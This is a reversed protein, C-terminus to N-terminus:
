LTKMLKNLYKPRSWTISLKKLDLEYFCKIYTKYKIRQCYNIIQWIKNLWGSPIHLVWVFIRANNNLTIIISSDIFYGVCNSRVLEWNITNTEVSQLYMSYNSNKWLCQLVKNRHKPNYHAPTTRQDFWPRYPLQDKRFCTCIFIQIRMKKKNKVSGADCNKSAYRVALTINTNNSLINSSEIGLITSLKRRFLCLFVTVSTSSSRLECWFIHLFRFVVSVIRESWRWWWHRWVRCSVNSSAWFCRILHHRWDM